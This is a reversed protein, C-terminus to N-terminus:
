GGNFKMPTSGRRELSNPWDNPKKNRKKKLGGNEIPSRRADIPPLFVFDENEIPLV